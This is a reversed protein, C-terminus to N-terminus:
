APFCAASAASVYWLTSIPCTSGWCPETSYTDHEVSAMTSSMNGVLWKHCAVVVASTSLFEILFFSMGPCSFYCSTNRHCAPHCTLRMGYTWPDLVVQPAQLSQLPKYTSLKDTEVYLLWWHGSTAFVDQKWKESHNKDSLYHKLSHLCWVNTLASCEDGTRHKHKLAKRWRKSPNAGEIWSLMLSTLMGTWGLTAPHIKKMPTSKHM